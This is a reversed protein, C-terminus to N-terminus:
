CRASLSKPAMNLLQVIPWVKYNSLMVTPWIAKTRALSWDLSKSQMFQVSFLMLGTLLPAAVAQDVLMKKTGTLLRTSSPRIHKELFRFWKFQIPAAICSIVFGFRLSRHVDLKQAKEVALQCIVDGTMALSGAMGAQMLFAKTPVIKTLLSM